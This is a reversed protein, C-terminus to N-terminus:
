IEVVDGQWQSAGVQHGSLVLLEKVLFLIQLSLSLSKWKFNIKNRGKRDWRTILILIKIIIMSNFALHM